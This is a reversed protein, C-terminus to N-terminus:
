KPNKKGGFQLHGLSGDHLWTRISFAASIGRHSSTLLIILQSEEIKFTLIGWRGFRVTVWCSGPSWCWTSSNGGDGPRVPHWWASGSVPSDWLLATRHVRQRVPPREGNGRQGGAAPVGGVGHNGARRSGPDFCVTSHWLVNLKWQDLITTFKCFPPPKSLFSRFSFSM